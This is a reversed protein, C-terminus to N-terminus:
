FERDALKERLFSVRPHALAMIVEIPMIKRKSTREAKKLPDSVANVAAECGSM